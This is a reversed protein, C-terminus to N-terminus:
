DVGDGEDARADEFFRSFAPMYPGVAARDDPPQLGRVEETFAVLDSVVKAVEKPSLGPSHHVGRDSRDKIDDLWLGLRQLEGSSARHGLRVELAAWLRNKWEAPGVDRGNWKQKQPPFLANALQEMYRRCSLAAQAIQESTQASVLREVASFLTNNLEPDVSVLWTCIAESEWPDPLWGALDIRRAFGAGFNIDYFITDQLGLNELAVRDFCGLGSLRNVQYALEAPDGELADFDHLVRVTNGVLRYRAPLTHELHLLVKREDPGIETVGFVGEVAGAVSDCVAEIKSAPVGAVLFVGFTAGARDAAVRASDTEDGLWDKRCRPYDVFSGSRVFLHDREDLLSCLAKLVEDRASFWQVPDTEPLLVALRM